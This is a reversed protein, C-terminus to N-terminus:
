PWGISDYDWNPPTDGELCNKKHIQGAKGYDITTVDAPWAKCLAMQRQCNAVLTKFNNMNAAAVWAQTQSCQPGCCCPFIFALDDQSTTTQAKVSYDVNWDSHDGMDCVSINWVGPVTRLGDLSHTLGVQEIVGTVNGPAQTSDYNFGGVGNNQARYSNASGKTVWAVDLGFPQEGMKDAGYPYALHGQYPGDENFRYLYYVGGDGCYKSAQWGNKDAACKTYSADDGLNAYTVWIKYQGWVYNIGRSALDDRLLDTVNTLSLSPSTIISTNVWNGGELMTLITPTTDSSPASNIAKGQMLDSVLTDIASATTNFVESMYAGFTAAKSDLTARNVLSKM